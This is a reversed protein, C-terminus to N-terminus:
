KPANVARNVLDEWVADVYEQLQKLLERNEPRLLHRFRGQLEIFKEIPQKLKPNRAIQLSRDTLFYGKGIIYEWLPFYCTDVARKCIEISKSEM